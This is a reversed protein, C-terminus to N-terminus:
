VRYILHVINASIKSASLALVLKTPISFDM